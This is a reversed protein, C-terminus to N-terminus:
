PNREVLVTPSSRLGVATHCVFYSELSSVGEWPDRPQEETAYIQPSVRRSRKGFCDVELLSHM